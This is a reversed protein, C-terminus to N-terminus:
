SRLECPDLVEDIAYQRQAACGILADWLMPSMGTGPRKTALNAETLLDGAKIPCAATISKRVHPINPVESPMPRKVGDGMAAEVNRVARVLAALEGPELSAKHDPGDWNRDLTFHKEIVTAGLAAAAVAIEIGATHDSYGVGKIDPFTERMTLMARLNVECSPAPYETTCHLLTIKRRATGACELINLADAVEGLTSMGTSLIIERQLTGLARLYPLNTMEGSPIKILQLGFRALLEISPIDFPTSLFRIGRETCRAMLAPHWEAKLELRRLMALQNEGTCSTTKQQYVAKKALCTTTAEAFFTQFKVIDAGAEAAADILRLALQKDGNHNVGAEAIILAQADAPM